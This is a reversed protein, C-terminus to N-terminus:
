INKNCKLKLPIFNRISNTVEKISQYKQNKSFNLERLDKILSYWCDNKKGNLTLMNRLARFGIEQCLIIVSLLKLAKTHKIGRNSNM